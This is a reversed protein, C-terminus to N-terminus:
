KKYLDQVHGFDPTRGWTTGDEQCERLGANGGWGGPGGRVIWLGCGGSTEQQTDRVLYM